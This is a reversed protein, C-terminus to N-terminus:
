VREQYVEVALWPTVRKEIHRVHPGLNTPAPIEREKGPEVLYARVALFDDRFHSSDADLLIPSHKKRDVLPLDSFQGKLLPMHTLLEVGRLSTPPQLKTISEPIRGSKLARLHRGALKATLHREGSRHKSIHLDVSPHADRGTVDKLLAPHRAYVPFAFFESKSTAKVELIEREEGGLRIAFLFEM